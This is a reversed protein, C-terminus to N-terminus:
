LGKINVLDHHLNLYKLGRIPDLNVRRYTMAAPGAPKNELASKGILNNLPYM